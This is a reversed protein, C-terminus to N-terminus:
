DKKMADLREAISQLTSQLSELWSHDQDPVYGLGRGL